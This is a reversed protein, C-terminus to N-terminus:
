VADRAPLSVAVTTGRGPESEVRIDGGHAKVIGYAISLGLGTGQGVEKTTFFPEFVRALAAAAIGSGTDGIRAVVRDGERRVAVELRGKEGMAQIANLLINTFVQSLEGPNGLVPGADELSRELEIGRKLEHGLLMLSTELPERLDLPKRLTPDKYSFTRLGQVIEKARRAGERTSQLLKEAQALTEATAAADGQACTQRLRALYGELHDANAYIYGIPNNIEHAVGAVLQGLSAMKESQVLQAQTREKEALAASLERTREQVKAELGSTLERIAAEQESLGLAMDNFGEALLGLEDNTRVPLRVSRDGARVRAMAARQRELPESVSRAVYIALLAALGIGSLVMFLNFFLLGNLVEDPPMSLLTSARQYSLAGLLVLPATGVLVFIAFLRWRVPIIWRDGAASLRYAAFFRPLEAQWASEIVFFMVASVMGSLLAVLGASTAAQALVRWSQRFSAGSRFLEEAMLDGGGGPAAAAAVPAPKGAYWVWVGILLAMALWGLLSALACVLPLRLARLRVGAGVEVAGAAFGRLPRAYWGAMALALLAPLVSLLVIEERRILRLESFRSVEVVSFYLNLLVGGALNVAVTLLLVAALRGPRTAFEGGMAQETPM